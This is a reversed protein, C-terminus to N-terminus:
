GGAGSVEQLTRIWGLRISSLAPSWGTTDRLKRNSLRLSRAM